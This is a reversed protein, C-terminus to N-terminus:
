GRLMRKYLLVYVLFSFSNIVLVQFAVHINFLHPIGYLVLVTVVTSLTLLSAVTLKFAGRLKPSPYYTVEQYAAELSGLLHAWRYCNCALALNQNLCSSMFSVVIAIALAKRWSEYVLLLQAVILLIQSLFQLFLFAFTAKTLTDPKTGSRKQVFVWTQRAFFILLVVRLAQFAYYVWLLILHELDTRQTDM